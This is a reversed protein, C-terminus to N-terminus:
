ALLTNILNVESHWRCSGPRPMDDPDSEYIYCWTEDVVRYSEILGWNLLWEAGAPTLKTLTDGAVIFGKRHLRNATQRSIFKDSKGIPKGVPILYCEGGLFTKLATEEAPSLEIPPKM